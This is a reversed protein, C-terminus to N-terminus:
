AAEIWAPCRTITRRVLPSADLLAAVHEALDPAEDALDQLIGRAADLRVTRDMASEDAEGLFLARLFEPLQEEGDFGLTLEGFESASVAEHHGVYTRM